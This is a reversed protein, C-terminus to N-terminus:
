GRDSPSDDKLRKIEELVKMRDDSPLSNLIKTTEPKPFNILHRALRRIHGISKIEM